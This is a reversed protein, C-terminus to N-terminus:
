AEGRHRFPLREDREEPMTAGHPHLLALDLLTATVGLRWAAQGVVLRGAESGARANPLMAVPALRRATPSAPLEVGGWSRRHGSPTRVTLVPHSRGARAKAVNAEM